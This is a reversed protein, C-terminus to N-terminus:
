TVAYLSPSNTTMFSVPVSGNIRFLRNHLRAVNVHHIGCKLFASLIKYLILMNEAETFFRPNIQGSFRIGGCQNILRIIQSLGGKGCVRKSLIKVNAHNLHRRCKGAYHVATGVESRM